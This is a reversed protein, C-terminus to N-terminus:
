RRIAHTRAHMRAEAGPDNAFTPYCFVALSADIVL